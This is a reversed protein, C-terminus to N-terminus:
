ESRLAVAPSIRAARAAPIASALLSVGLLVAAGGILIVTDHPSVGFLLSSLTRGLGLAVVLGLGVGVGGLILGERMVLRRVTRRDAGLAQRIGIEGTRRAVAYAIVGYIGVAGLLLAIAAALALWAATFATRNLSEGVVAEMSRVDTVPLYADMDEVIRRVDPFVGLPDSRTEATVRMSRVRGAILDVGLRYVLPDVPADLATNHVDGAVGVVTAPFGNVEMRKGLASAGPWYTDRISRSIVIPGPDITRDGLTLTRGEVLPIGMAEFYGPTVWRIMFTPPFVGDGSPFGEVETTLIRGDGTLPLTDIAGADLVDPLARLRDLLQDYFRVISAPDGHRAMSPFLRFTLVNRAGFGPDVSRLASVSGAMLAAGVFLALALAMQAVVLANRSRRGYPHGANTRIGLVGSLRRSGSAVAPLISVLLGVLVSLLASVALVSASVRIEELRPISPPALAVLARIGLLALGVGGAGGLLGLFLGEVLSHQALRFRGSGLALRVATEHSRAEARVLFLNAVNSCAIILVFAMTGVLILLPRTSDGVIEERLTRVSAEGTFVGAFWSPDSYGVEPFRAILGESHDRASELTAGPALRAIASISHLGFNGSSPDLKYPVWVDTEPSPFAYGAPMVGIVERVSGDLEVTRGIISPDAGFLNRWLADSLLVVPSGGPRDEEAVPWRGLQPRVRVLQFASATMRAVDLQLPEGEGTLAWEMPPGFGGFGNFARGSNVFLWYGRDSFAMEDGPVGMEPLVRATVRVLRDAEPYPLSRLLVGDAVSFIATIAGIGLALTALAAISFGRSRSLNRVALKVDILLNEVLPVGREARWDEQASTLSGFTMRAAREAASREMGARLNDETQMAIHASFEDNMERERRGRALMGAFRRWLRRVARM